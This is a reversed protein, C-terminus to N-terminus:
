VQTRMRMPWTQATLGTVLGGRLINERYFPPCTSDVEPSTHSYIYLCIHFDRISTVPVWLVISTRPQQGAVYSRLPWLSNLGWDWSSETNNRFHLATPMWTAKLYCKLLNKLKKTLNEGTSYIQKWTEKFPLHPVFRPTDELLTGKSKSNSLSPISINSISCHFDCRLIYIYWILM